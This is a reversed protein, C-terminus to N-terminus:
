GAVKKIFIALRQFVMDAVPEQVLIHQDAGVLSYEKERAKLREFLGRSSRPKVVPDRDGHMLLVPASIEGLRGRLEELLNGVERIGSVPNREYNIHPNDAEFRLFQNEVQEGKVKQLMKNWVDVSPMFRTSYDKLRLPSSLAFVGALQEARTALNLALCGGVSIGGVVVQECVNSLLAYGRDVAAEWEQMTTGALDDACTGHGPLRPVYVWYGQRNLFRALQKVEQPNALYSHILLVGVKRRFWPYIYPSAAIDERGTSPCWTLRAQEFARKDKRYLHWALTLKLLFDPQWALSLVLRELAKLPEVENAIVEVPNDIRGRHFSIPASLKSRDRVLIDNDRTVIGKDLAVQLFNDFKKYRDDIVLHSQDEQLSKHLFLEEGSYEQLLLGAYFVRRLLDERHIRKYPYLRLYSAFLHEQNVTTMSYITHMYQQMIEKGSEQIRSNLPQSSIIESLTRKKLEADSVIGDLIKDMGIAPGFRIDLDVGSLLMTGETMIEELIRESVGKIMKETLTSAFNEVARIPYYTLNVPVIVPSIDRAEEISELGLYELACKAQSTRNKTHLLLYRRFLETRLALTAAGTHPEHMGKPNTVMYKGGHMIKKTKIMRGEPFIIWHAEGTLLTKIILEDRQPDKTSVAGVMELFHSFGGQFLRADALSWVPTGTLTFVHYPLLFTEIRTFHNVVFIIPGDPINERGHIEINAKSIRSLTKIALGTTLYASRIMPEGGYVM